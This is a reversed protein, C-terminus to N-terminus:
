TVLEVRQGVLRPPGRTKRSMGPLIFHHGAGQDLASARDRAQDGIAAVVGVVQAAEQGLPL